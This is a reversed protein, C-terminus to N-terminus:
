FKVTVNVVNNNGKNAQKKYKFKAASGNNIINKIIIIYRVIM